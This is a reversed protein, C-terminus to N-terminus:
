KEFRNLLPPDYRQSDINFVDKKEAIVIAKFNKHVRARISDSGIAIRCLKDSGMEKYNKNLLDYL